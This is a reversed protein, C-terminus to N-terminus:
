MKFIKDQEKKPKEDCTNKIFSNDPRVGGTNDVDFLRWTSATSNAM